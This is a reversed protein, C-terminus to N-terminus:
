RAAEGTVLRKAMCAASAPCLSRFEITEQMEAPASAREVRQYGRAAFFGEATTTLLYLTEVERDRAYAEAAATLRTGIGRGRGQAPVALSRLLAHRGLLELGVVGVLRGEERLVMFHRLHAPTIDQHPLECEALLRRIGPEDDLRAFEIETM